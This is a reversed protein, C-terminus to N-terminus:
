KKHLKPSATKVKQSPRELGKWLDPMTEEGEEKFNPEHMQGLKEEITKRKKTKKNNGWLTKHVVSTDMNIPGTFGGIAGGAASIFEELEQEEEFLLNYLKM